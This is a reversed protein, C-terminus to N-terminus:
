GVAYSKYEWNCIIVSPILWVNSLSILFHKSNEYTSFGSVSMIPWKLIWDLSGSHILIHGYGICRNPDV